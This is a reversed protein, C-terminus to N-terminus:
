ILLKILALELWIIFHSCFSGSHSEMGKPVENVNEDRHVKQSGETRWMRNGSYVYLM